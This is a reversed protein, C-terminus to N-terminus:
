LFNPHIEPNPHRLDEIILNLPDMRCGVPCKSVDLDNLIRERKESKWLSDFSGTEVINGICFKEQGHLNGCIYVKGDPDLFTTFAQGHCQSYGRNQNEYDLVKNFQDYKVYVKFTSNELQKVEKMLTIVQNLPATNEEHELINPNKYVPKLAFYDVGIEKWLRCAILMSRWNIHSVSFQVGITPFLQKGRKNILLKIVKIIQEFDNGAQGAHHIHNHEETDAASCSLRLFTHTDAIASVMEENILAGNTFLGVDVGKSKIGRIIEIFRPHLTPEGTGVLTVARLGLNSAEDVTNIIMDVPAFNNNNYHTSIADYGYCWTCAHNCCNTLGVIMHVPYCDGQKLYSELNDSHYFIKQFSLRDM